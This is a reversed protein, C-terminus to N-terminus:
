KITNEIKAFIIFFNVCLLEEPTEVTILKDNTSNTTPRNAKTKNFELLTDFLIFSLITQHSQTM